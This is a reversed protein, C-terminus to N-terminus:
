SEETKNEAQKIRDYAAVRQRQKEREELLEADSMAALSDNPSHEFVHRQSYQKHHRRELLWMAGSSGKAGALILGHMRAKGKARARTVAAHFNAYPAIGEAGKSMWDRFTRDSVGNMEAADCEYMLIEIYKCIADTVARTLKTTTGTTGKPRGAPM